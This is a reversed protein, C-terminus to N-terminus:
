PHIGAQALMALFQHQTRQDVAIAVLNGERNFVFSEPLGLLHFLHVVREGPDLLVTPHYNMRSVLMRVKAPDDPTISLVVLGQSQFRTYLADLNPMELRCPACWTAWFNVLVVKGRLASLSVKNNDLDSLTFGADQAAADNEELLRMARAFVPNDLAANVHEYHVLRALALYQEPPYDSKAPIPSEALAQELTTAAMQEAERGQDGETVRITLDEALQVKISGAPLSQIERAIEISLAPRQEEPVSLFDQIKQAIASENAQPCAFPGALLLLAALVTPCSGTM